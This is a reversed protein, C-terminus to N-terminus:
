GTALMLFDRAQVHSDPCEAALSRQTGPPPLRAAGSCPASSRRGRGMLPGRPEGRVLRVDDPRGPDVPAAAEAAPLDAGGRGSRMGRGVPSGCAASPAQPCRPGPLCGPGRLGLCVSGTRRVAEGIWRVVAARASWEGVGPTGPPPAAGAGGLDAGGVGAWGM